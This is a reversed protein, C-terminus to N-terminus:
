LYPVYQPFNSEYITVRYPETQGQVRVLDNNGLEDNRRSGFVPVKINSNHGMVTYYLYHNSNPYEKMGFLPLYENPSANLKYIIGVQQPQGRPGRTTINVPAINADSVLLPQNPNAIPVQTGGLTPGNRAGGGIVQFPLSLEPYWNQEYFYDNRMPYRLPNWFRDIADIEKPGREIGSITAMPPSTVIMPAPAPEEYREVRIARGGHMHYLIGLVVLLLLIVIMLYTNKKNVFRKPPM